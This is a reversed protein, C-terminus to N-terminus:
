GFAVPGYLILLDAAVAVDSFIELSILSLLRNPDILLVSRWINV